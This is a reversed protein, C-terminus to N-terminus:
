LSLGTVKVNCSTAQVNPWDFMGRGEGLGDFCVEGGVGDVWESGYFM